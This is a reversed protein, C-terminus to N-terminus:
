LFGFSRPNRGDVVDDLTVDEYRAGREVAIRRKREAEVNEKTTEDKEKRKRQRLKLSINDDDEEDPDDDDDDDDDDHDDDYGRSERALCERRRRETQQPTEDSDSEDDPGSSFNDNALDEGIGRRRNATIIRSHPDVPNEPRGYKAYNNIRTARYVRRERATIRLPLDGTATLLERGMRRELDGPATAVSAQCCWFYTSSDNSPIHISGHDSVSYMDSLAFHKGDM